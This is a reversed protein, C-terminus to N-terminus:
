EMGLERRLAPVDYGFPSFGSADLADEFGHDREFDVLLRELDERRTPDAAAERPTLGALAPVPGDLWAVQMQRQLEGQLVAMTTERDTDDDLAMMVREVEERDIMDDLMGPRHAITPPRMLRGAWACLEFPDGTDCLDLVMSEQGTAVPFVGGVIQHGAGDPVVRLCFRDGVTMQRSATRESVTVVDGTALDRVEVEAGPDVSVIEYVSRRVSLWSAVLLQEDDPLLPGRADLFEEMLGGEALAVDFVLPDALAAGVLEHLEDDDFFEADAPDATGAAYAVALNLPLDRASGSLHEIFLTMKRSLWGVREPLAPLTDSSQHCQKFKRGSGCWCPDNRRLRAGQEGRSLFPEITALSEHGGSLERWWRNAGRADGRDSCYWGLREVVAGIRPVAAHARRLHEEAAVPEGCRERLVAALYEATLREKSRRATGLARDVLEFAYRPASPDDAAYGDLPLMRPPLIVDALIDLLEDTGCSELANRLAHDPTEPNDIAPVARRLVRRLHEDPTEVNVQYLMQTHRDNRWVSDDHAVRNVRRDLGAAACVDALPPRASRFAGSDSVLMQWAVDEISVSYGEDSAALRHYADHAADVLDDSLTPELDIKHMTIHATSELVARFSSDAGGAGDVVSDTPNELTVTLAIVEGPAFGDLWDEPGYMAASLDAVSILELAVPPNATALVLGTFRSLPSLDGPLMLMGLECETDSLRHTFTTGDLLDPVSVIGDDAVFALPGDLMVDLVEDLLLEISTNHSPSHEAMTQTMLADLDIGPSRRAANRLAHALDAVNPLPLDQLAREYLETDFRDGTDLSSRLVDAMCLSIQNLVQSPAMGEALLREVSHGVEAPEDALLQNVVITRITSTALRSHEPNAERSDADLNSRRLTEHDLYREVFAIVATEDDVDLSDLEDLADGDGALLQRVHEKAM